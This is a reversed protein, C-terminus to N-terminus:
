VIPTYAMNHPHDEDDPDYDPELNPRILDDLDPEFYRLEEILHCMLVGSMVIDDKTGEKAAWSQGQKIFTKLQSVMHKSRPIFLNREIVAVKMGSEALRNTLSPGAQGTGIVIADFEQSM